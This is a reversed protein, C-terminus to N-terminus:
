SAQPAFLPACFSADAAADFAARKTPRIGLPEAEGTLYSRYYRLIQGQRRAREILGHLRIRDQHDLVEAHDYDALASWTENDRELADGLNRIMGYIYAYHLREQLPIHSAVQGAKAVDWVDAGVGFGSPRGILRVMAPAPSGTGSRELWQELAGLRRDACDQHAVRFEYNGLDRALEVHLAERTEAVERQWHLWEVAQEASLAILVGVIIVGIESLFERWSHVPKPKHIDLAAEETEVSPL